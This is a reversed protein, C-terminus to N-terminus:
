DIVCIEAGGQQLFSSVNSGSGNSLWQTSLLHGKTGTPTFRLRTM